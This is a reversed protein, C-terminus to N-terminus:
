IVDPQEPILSAFFLTVFNVALNLPSRHEVVAELNSPDPAEAGGQQNGEGVAGNHLLNDQQDRRGEVVRDRPRQQRVGRGGGRLHRAQYLYVLVAVGVIVLFRTVNSYFYVISFLVLVRTMLYLWNLLDGQLGGDIGQDEQFAPGAGANLVPAGGADGQALPAPGERGVDAPRVQGVDAPEVQGVAHVGHGAPGLGQDGSMQHLWYQTLYQGYMEYMLAQQTDAEQRLYLQSGMSQQLLNTVDYQDYLHDTQLPGGVLPAAPPQTLAPSPVSCVLHLSHTLCDPDLRLTQSLTAEDSVLKGGYVLKQDSPAPCGPFLESIRLKLRGITLGLQCQMELDEVGLSPSKIKLRVTDAEM